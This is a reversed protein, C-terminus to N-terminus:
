PSPMHTFSCARCTRIKRLADGERIDRRFPRKRSPDAVLRHEQRSQATLEEGDAAGTGMVAAVEAVPDEALLGDMAREVVGAEVQPRALREPCWREVGHIPPLDLNFAVAGKDSPLDILLRLDYLRSRDHLLDDDGAASRGAEGTCV